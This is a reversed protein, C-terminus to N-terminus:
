LLDLAQARALAQMRGAVQLKGYLGKVHHRVTNLSVVLADAIQQYTLGRALLRLVELERETLPEALPQPSLASPQPDPASPTMQGYAALLEAIYPKMGGGEDKMRQLLTAVVPGADLFSRVYGEPV